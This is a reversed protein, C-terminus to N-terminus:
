NKMKPLISITKQDEEGAFYKILVDAFVKQLPAVYKFLTMCSKLKLNDPYGFIDEVTKGGLKLIINCCEMLRKGLIPHDIYEKAENISKISFYKATTSNGLGEIQPFIFWMWHSTKKGNQLEQLVQPYITQQASLFRSLTNDTIM